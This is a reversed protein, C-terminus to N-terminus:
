HGLQLKPIQLMLVELALRVNANKRLKDQTNRIASITNAAKISDVKSAVTQIESQYDINTIAYNTTGSSVVMVDRWWCEWLSLAVVVQERDKRLTDVYSFRNVRSQSLLSIMQSLKISRDDLTEKDLMLTVAWGLRGGSIRALFSAEQNQVGWHKILAQQVLSVPLSRLDFSICRSLITEPLSSVNDITIIFVADGPPEELTKLMADSALRSATEFNTIIAIRRELEIPNLTFRYIMNRIEDISIKDQRITKGSVRPAIEEVDPHKSNSILRCPRCNGCPHGQKELCCISKAFDIALTRKGISPPGSFLYAHHIRGSQIHNILAAVIWEHGITNWGTNTDSYDVM